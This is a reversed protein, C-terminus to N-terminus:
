SDGSAAPRRCKTTMPRGTLAVGGGRVLAPQDRRREHLGRHHQVVARRRGLVYRHSLLRDPYQYSGDAAVIRYPKVGDGRATFHVFQSDGARRIGTIELLSDPDNPNSGAASEERDGMRDHDTDPDNPDTFLDPDDPWGTGAVETTDSLRDGDNDATLEHPGNPGAQNRKKIDVAQLFGAYNCLSGNAQTFIGGPQGAAGAHRYPVGGIDVTNTSVIGSGDHVAGLNRYDQAPSSLSILTPVCPWSCALAPPPVVTSKM